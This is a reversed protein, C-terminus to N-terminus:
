GWIFMDNVFGGNYFLVVYLVNFCVNVLIVGLLWCESGLGLYGIVWFIIMLFVLLFIVLM